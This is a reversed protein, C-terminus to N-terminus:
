SSCFRSCFPLLVLTIMSDNQLYVLLMVLQSKVAKVITVEYVTCLYTHLTHNIAIRAMNNQLHQFNHVNADSSGCLLSDAFDLRFQFIDPWCVLGSWVLGFWLFSLISVHFTNM